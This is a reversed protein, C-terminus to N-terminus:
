GQNKSVSFCIWSGRNAEQVYTQKRAQKKEENREKGDHQVEQIMKHVFIVEKMVLHFHAVRVSLFVTVVVVVVFYHFLSFM